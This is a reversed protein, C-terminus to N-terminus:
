SENPDVVLCRLVPRRESMMLQIEEDSLGREVGSKVQSARAEVMAEAQAAYCAQADTFQDLLISRQCHDGDMSCFTAILLFFKM